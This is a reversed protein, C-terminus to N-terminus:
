VIYTSTDTTELGREGSRVIARHQSCEFWEESSPLSSLMKQSNRRCLISSTYLSSTVIFSMYCMSFADCAYFDHFREEDSMKM